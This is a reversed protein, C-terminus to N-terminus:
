ENIMQSMVMVDEESLGEYYQEAIYRAINKAVGEFEIQDMTSFSLSKPIKQICMGVNPVQIGIEDCGFGSELQLRKVAKHVDMGHFSDINQVCLQGLKHVLNNFKVSRLKKLDAKVIQLEKLKMEQLQSASYNDAPAFGEKTVRLYIEKAM